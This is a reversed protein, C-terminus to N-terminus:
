EVYHQNRERMDKLLNILQGELDLKSALLIGNDVPSERVYVDFLTFWSECETAPREFFDAASLIPLTFLIGPYRPDDKLDSAFMEKSKPHFEDTLSYTSAVFEDVDVLQFIKHKKRFVESFPLKPPATKPDPRLSIITLGGNGFFVERQRKELKRQFWYCYDPTWEKLNFEKEGRLIPELDEILPSPALTTGPQRSLGMIPGFEIATKQFARQMEMIAKYQLFVEVRLGEQITLHALLSDLFEM